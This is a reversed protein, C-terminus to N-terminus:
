EKFPKDSKDIVEDGEFLYYIKEKIESVTNSSNNKRLIIHDNIHSKKNDQTDDEKANLVVKKVTEFKGNREGDIYNGIVILEQQKFFYKGFGHKKDNNFQGFFVDGADLHSYEENMQDFKQETFELHESLNFHEIKNHNKVSNEENHIYCGLHTKTYSNDFFGEFVDGTRFYLRGYKCFWKDKEFIGEYKRIFFNGDFLIVGEGHMCGNDFEGKYYYRYNLLPFSKISIGKGNEINNKFGGQYFYYSEVDFKKNDYEDKLYTIKMLKEGSKYTKDEFKGQYQEVLIKKELEVISSYYGSNLRGKKFDGRCITKNSDKGKKEKPISLSIGFGHPKGAKWEGFYFYYEERSNEFKYIYGYGDKKGNRFTGNYYSRSPKILLGINAFQNNYMDMDGKYFSYNDYKLLISQHMSSGKKSGKTENKTVNTKRNKTSKTLCTSATKNLDKNEDLKIQVKTEEHKQNKLDINLNKSENTNNNSKNILIKFNNKDFKSIKLAPNPQKIPSEISLKDNDKNEIKYNGISVNIYVLKETFDEYITDNRVYRENLCDVIEEKKNKIIKIHKKQIYNGKKLISMYIYKNIFKRFKKNLKVAFVPKMIADLFVNENNDNDDRLNLIYDIYRYLQENSKYSMVLFPDM